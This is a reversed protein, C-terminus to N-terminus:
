SGLDDLALVALTGNGSGAVSVIALGEEGAEERDEDEEDNKGGSEGHLVARSSGGASAGVAGELGDDGDIEGGDGSTKADDEVEGDTRRSAGGSGEAFMVGAKFDVADPDLPEMEDPGTKAKEEEDEDEDDADEEAEEEEAEEEDAVSVRPWWDSHSRRLLVPLCRAIALNRSSVSGIAFLRFNTRAQTASESVTKTNQTQERLAREVTSHLFNDTRPCQARRMQGFRLTSLLALFQFFREGGIDDFRQTGQWRMRVMPLGQQVGQQVTQGCRLAVLESLVDPETWVRERAGSAARKIRRRRIQDSQLVLGLGFAFADLVGVHVHELPEQAVLQRRL